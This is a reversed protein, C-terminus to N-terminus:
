NLDRSKLRGMALDLEQEWSVKRAQIDASYACSKKLKKRIYKMTQDIVWFISIMESLKAKSTM